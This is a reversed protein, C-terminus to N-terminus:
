NKLLLYDKFAKKDKFIILSAQMKNKTLNIICLHAIMAEIISKKTSSCNQFIKRCRRRPHRDLDKQTLHRRRLLILIHQLHGWRSQMRARAYGYCVSPGHRSPSHSLSAALPLLCFQSLMGILVGVPTRIHSWVENWTIHCGYAFM